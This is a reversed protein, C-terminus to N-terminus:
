VVAVRGFRRERRPYLELLAMLAGVERPPRQWNEQSFAYLTLVEVHRPLEGDTRIQDLLSHSM